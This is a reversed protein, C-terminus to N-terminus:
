KSQGATLHSLEALMSLGSMSNDMNFSSTGGVVSPATAEQQQAALVDTEEARQQYIQDVAEQPQQVSAAEESVEAASSDMVSTIIRGDESQTYYVQQGPVMTQNADMITRIIRGTSDQMYVFQKGPPAVDNISQASDIPTLHGNLDHAYIIQQEGQQSDAEESGSTTQEQVQEEQTVPIGGSYVVTTEIEGDARMCQKYVVSDAYSPIDNPDIISTVVQGTSDTMQIFYVSDNAAVATDTQQSENYQTQNTQESIESPVLGEVSTQQSYTDTEPYSEVQQQPESEATETVVSEVSDVDAVSRSFSEGTTTVQGSDIPSSVASEVSSFCSVATVISERRPEAAADCVDSGVEMPSEEEPEHYSASASAFAAFADQFGRGASGTSSSPKSAAEDFNVTQEKFGDLSDSSADISTSQVHESLGEQVDLAQSAHSVPDLDVTTSSVEAGSNDLTQGTDSPGETIHSNEVSMTQEVSEQLPHDEDTNRTAPM